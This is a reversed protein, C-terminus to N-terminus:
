SLRSTRFSGNSRVILLWRRIATGMFFTTEDRDWKVMISAYFCVLVIVFIVNHPLLLFLM